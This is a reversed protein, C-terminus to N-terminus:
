KKKKEKLSKIIPPLQLVLGILFFILVLGWAIFWSEGYFLNHLFNIM